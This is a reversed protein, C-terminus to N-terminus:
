LEFVINKSILKYVRIFIYLKRLLIFVKTANKIVLYFTFYPVIM